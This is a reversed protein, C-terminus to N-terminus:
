FASTRAEGPLAYAAEPILVWAVAYALGVLGSSAFMLVLVLVRLFNVDWGYYEALGSCVGAVKRPFRPRVLRTGRGKPFAFWGEVVAAMKSFGASRGFMVKEDMAFEM